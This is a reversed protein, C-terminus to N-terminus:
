RGPDSRWGRPRGASPVPARLPEGGGGGPGGRGPPHHQPCALRRGEWAPRAHARPRALSYPSAEGSSLGASPRHRRLLAAERATHTAPVGGERQHPDRHRPPLPRSGHWGSPRRRLAQQGMLTPRNECLTNKETFVLASSVAPWPSPLPARPGQYDWLGRCLCHPFRPLLGHPSAEGQSRGPLKAPTSPLFGVEKGPTLLHLAGPRRWAM